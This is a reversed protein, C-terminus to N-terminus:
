YSQINGSGILNTELSRNVRITLETDTNYWQSFNILWSGEYVNKGLLDILNSRGSIEVKQEIGQIVEVNVTGRIRLSHFDTLVITKTVVEGKRELCDAGYSNAFGQM